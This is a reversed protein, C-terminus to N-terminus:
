GRGAVIQRRRSAGVALILLGGALMPAAAPLPVATAEATVDAVFIIVDGPNLRLAGSATFADFVFESAAGRPPPFDASAITVIGAASPGVNGDNRILGGFALGNAMPTEMPNAFEILGSLAFDFLVDVVDFAHNATNTYRVEGRAFDSAHSAVSTDLVAVAGLNDGASFGVTEILLDGTPSAGMPLTSFDPLVIGTNVHINASMTLTAASVSVISAALVGVFATVATLCTRTQM